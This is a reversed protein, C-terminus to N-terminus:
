SAGVVHRDQLVERVWCCLREQQWIEDVWLCQLGPFTSSLHHPFQFCNILICYWLMVSFNGVFLRPYDRMADIVNLQRLIPRSLRAGTPTRSRTASRTSTKGIRTSFITQSRPGTPQGSMRLPRTWSASRVLPPSSPFVILGPSWSRSPGASGAAGSTPPSTSRFYSFM